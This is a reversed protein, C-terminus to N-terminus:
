ESSEDNIEEPYTARLMRILRECYEKTMQLTMTNGDSMLTLTTGGDNTYGVRYLEQSKEPQSECMPYNEEASQQFEKSTRTGFLDFM